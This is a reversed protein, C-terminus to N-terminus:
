KSFVQTDNDQGTSFASETRSSTVITVPIEKRGLISLIINSPFERLLTTHERSMDLLEKQRMTFGDRKASIINQLNNFTSTDVNPVSEHIWNALSGGKWMNDMEHQNDRQKAEIATRLRVEQNSTSILSLAIIITGIVGISFLGLLSIGLKNM